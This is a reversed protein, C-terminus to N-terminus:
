LISNKGLISVSTVESEASGNKKANEDHNDVQANQDHASSDLRKAKDNTNKTNDDVPGALNDSGLDEVRGRHLKETFLPGESGHDEYM